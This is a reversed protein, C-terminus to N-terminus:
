AATARSRVEDMDLARVQEILAFFYTVVRFAQGPYYHGATLL